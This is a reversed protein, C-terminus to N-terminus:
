LEDEFLRIAAYGAAGSDLCLQGRERDVGGIALLPIAVEGAVEQLRALGVAPVGPHSPTEFVPGFIVFDAGEEEAMHAAASTHVSRGLLSEAGLLRRAVSVPLDTEPLNVGAAQVALAVDVRSSILVPLRCRGVLAEAEAELRLAPSTRLQVLTAGRSEARMGMEASDVM